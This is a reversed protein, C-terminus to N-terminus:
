TSPNWVEIDCYHARIQGGLAQTAFNFLAFRFGGYGHRSKTLPYTPGLQDYREGDYSYEFVANRAHNIYEGVYDPRMDVKIRLWVKEHKLFDEARVSGNSICEWDLAVPRGNIFGVPVPRPGVMAGALQVLKADGAEKHIGIYASEDQFISLGTRDGEKMKSTDICLTAISGPGVTRITLTNTALHIGQTVTSTELVLQGGDLRWKSNNPNHNWEWCHELEPKSFDHRVKSSHPSGNSRPNPHPYELLWQGQADPHDVVVRPWGESDFVVPALVPIWGTPFADTFAMFYLQGKPTDVLGGQHPSGSGALPSRMEDIIDRAEYSGFPGNEVQAYM